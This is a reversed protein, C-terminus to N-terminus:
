PSQPDTFVVPPPLLLCTSYQPPISQQMPRSIFSYSSANTDMLPTTEAIYISIADLTETSLSALSVMIDSVPSANCTFTLTAISAVFSTQPPHPTHAQLSTSAPPSSDQM